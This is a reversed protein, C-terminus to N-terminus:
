MFATLAHPQNKCYELRAIPVGIYAEVKNYLDTENNVHWVGQANMLRFNIGEIIAESLCTIKDLNAEVNEVIFSKQMIIFFPILTLLNIFNNAYIRLYKAPMRKLLM